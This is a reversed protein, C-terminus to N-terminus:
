EVAGAAHRRVAVASRRPPFTRRQAAPRLRARELAPQLTPGLHAMAFRGLTGQERCNRGTDRWRHEGIGQERGLGLTREGVGSVREVEDVLCELAEVQDAPLVRRSQHRSDDALHHRGTAGFFRCGPALGNVKNRETLFRGALQRFQESGAPTRV